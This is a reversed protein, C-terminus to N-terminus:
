YTQIRCTSFVERRAKRKETMKREVEEYIKDAEEDDQEYPLTNFLGTENEMDVYQEDGGDEASAGPKSKSVIRGEAAAQAAAM